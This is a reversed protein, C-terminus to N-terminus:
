ILICIRQSLLIKQHLYFFYRKNFHYYRYSSSLRKSLIRATSNNKHLSDKTFPNEIPCSSKHPSSYVSPANLTGPSSIESSASRQILYPFVLKANLSTQEQLPHLKEKNKKHINPLQPLAPAVPISLDMPLQPLSTADLRRRGSKIVHGKKLKANIKRNANSRSQTSIDKMVSSVLPWSWNAKMAMPHALVEILLNTFIM